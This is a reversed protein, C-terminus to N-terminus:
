IADPFHLQELTPVKSLIPRMVAGTLGRQKYFTIRFRGLLNDAFTFNISSDTILCDTQDRSLLSSVLDNVSDEDLKDLRSMNLRGNINLFPPMNPTIHLTQAGSDIVLKALEKIDM